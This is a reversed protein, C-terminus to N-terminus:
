RASRTDMTYRLMRVVKESLQRGGDSTFLHSVKDFWPENSCADKLDPVNRLSAFNFATLELNSMERLARIITQNDPEMMPPPISPMIGNSGNIRSSFVRGLVNRYTDYPRGEKGVAVIANVPKETKQSKWFDYIGRLMTEAVEEESLHGVTRICLSPFVVFDAGYKNAATMASIVAYEIASIERQKHSSGLCLVNILLSSKGGGSKTTVADGFPLDNVETGLLEVQTKFEAIGHRAGARAVRGSIGTEITLLQPHPVVYADCQIDTMDAMAVGAVYSEAVTDSLAFSAIGANTLAIQAAQTM